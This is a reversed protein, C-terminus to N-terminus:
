AGNSAPGANDAGEVDADMLKRLADPDTIKERPAGDRAAAIEAADIAQWVSFGAPAVGRAQLTRVLGQHGARESADARGTAAIREIIHFGDPRNSGITGSAGRRAWGVCWLGPAIHGDESMFGGSDHDWPVGPVPEGMHGIATIVLSAGVTEIQGTDVLAGDPGIRTRALEVAEVRDGGIIRRVRHFFAFHLRVPRDHRAENGVRRLAAVAMRKGAPLMRDDAVPPFDAPDIVFGVDRLSALEEVQRPSFKAEYPGRRGVIHIDTFRAASLAELAERTIDSGALRGPRRSLVRACDLAVNGHGVIVASTGDLRPPKRVHDPHGNYWGVFATSGIVGPLNKGPVDLERDVPAGTALVVDDYLDRLGALTIDRGVAVNGAFQVRPDDVIDAYRATVAKVAQHDPAVGTRILGFPTPLRDILTIAIGDGFQQLAAEATYFGAPGSGVIALHRKAM